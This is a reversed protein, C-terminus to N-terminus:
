QKFIEYDADERHIVNLSIRQIIDFLSILYLFYNILNYLKYIVKNINIAFFDCFGCLGVFAFHRDVPTYSRNLRLIGCGDCFTLVRVGIEGCLVFYGVNVSIIGLCYRFVSRKLHYEAIKLLSKM